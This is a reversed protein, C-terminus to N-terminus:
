IVDKFGAFFQWTEKACLEWSYKEASKYEVIALDKRRDPSLIMKKLEDSISKPLEPDFYFGAVSLIDPMPGRKSCAIPVGAAMAEILINPLNECSSAFIFAECDHYYSPLLKYPVEGLYRLFIHQPDFKSILSLVRRGYRGWIPGIFDCAVPYGEKRLQYIAKIVEIQHKYPMLISVYIFRFPQKISYHEVTFQQRPSLFFQENIGHPILIQRGVIAVVNNINVQAYESLFIIGEARKFSLAQLCRLLRMKLYILSFRGFLRAKDLEFPLMNQSITVAPLLSILPLTSGPFFAIACGERRMQFSLFLHQFIFRKISSGTFWHDSRINIWVQKPLLQSIKPNCWITIKSIGQEQPSAASLLQVLHTVGGGQRINTADIGVHM